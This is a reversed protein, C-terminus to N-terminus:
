VAAFYGMNRKATNDDLHMPHGLARAISMLTFVEWYEQSLGPFKVWILAHYTAQSATNFNPTWKNVRLVQGDLIWSGQQWIRLYDEEIFFNLMLYGRGFPIAKYGGKLNWKQEIEARIKTINTKQFDLRGVLAWKCQEIGKLVEDKALKVMPFSGQKGPIPLSSLDIDRGVKPQSGAVAAAFSTTKEAAVSSSGSISPISRNQEKDKQLLPM